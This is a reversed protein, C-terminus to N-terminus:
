SRRAAVAVVDAVVHDAAIFAFGGVVRRERGLIEGALGAMEALSSGPRFFGAPVAPRAKDGACPCERRGNRVAPRCPRGNRAAGPSPASGPGSTAPWGARCRRCRRSSSPVAPWGRAPRYGPYFRCASARVPQHPRGEPGFDSPFRDVGRLGSWTRAAAPSIRNGSFDTVRMRVASKLTASSSPVGASTM